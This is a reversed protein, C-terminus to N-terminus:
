VCLLIILHCFAESGSFNCRIPVKHKYLDGDLCTGKGAGYKLPQGRAGRSNSVTGLGPTYGKAQLKAIM